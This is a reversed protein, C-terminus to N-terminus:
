KGHELILMNGSLIAVIEIFNLDNINVFIMITIVWPM